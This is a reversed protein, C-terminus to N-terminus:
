KKTWGEERMIREVDPLPMLINLKKEIAARAYYVDSHFMKIGDKDKAIASMISSYYSYPPSNLKGQAAISERTLYNM